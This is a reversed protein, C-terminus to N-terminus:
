HVIESRAIRTDAVKPTKWEIFDLNILRKHSIQENIFSTKCDNPSDSPQSDAKADGRRGLPDLSFLLHM